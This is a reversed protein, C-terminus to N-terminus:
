RSDSGQNATLSSLFQSTIESKSGSAEENVGQSTETAIAAVNM